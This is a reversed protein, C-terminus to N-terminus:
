NNEKDDNLNHRIFRKRNKDNERFNCSAFKSKRKSSIQNIIDQEQAIAIKTKQKELEKIVSQQIMIDQTSDSSLIGATDNLLGSPPILLNNKREYILIYPITVDRSNCQFKKQRLVTTDSIFFWANDMQVESTYHGYDSQQGKHYIVGSLVMTNGWLVIEEDISLNPIVKKNIGGIYKFINLQIILAGSLQSVYVAKTSTNLRQCGDCRCSELYEGRPDMLQHLM